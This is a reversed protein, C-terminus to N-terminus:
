LTSNKKLSVIYGDEGGGRGCRPPKKTALLEAGGEKKERKGKLKGNKKADSLLFASDKCRSRYGMVPKLTM